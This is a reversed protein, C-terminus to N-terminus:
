RNMKNRNKDEPTDTRNRTENGESNISVHDPTPLAAHHVESDQLEQTSQIDGGDNVYTDKNLKIDKDNNGIFQTDEIKIMSFLETSDTSLKEEM